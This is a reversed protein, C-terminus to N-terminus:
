IYKIVETINCVKKSKKLLNAENTEIHIYEILEANNCM